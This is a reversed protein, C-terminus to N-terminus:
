GFNNSGAYETSGGGGGAYGTLIGTIDNVIGSGGDGGHDNDIPNKGEGGAGGGGGGGYSSFGKSGGLYGGSIFTKGNWYTNGQTTEISSLM